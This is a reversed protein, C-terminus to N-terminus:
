QKKGKPAEPEQPVESAEAVPEALVEPVEMPTADPEEQTPDEPDSTVEDLGLSENYEKIVLELTGASQAYANMRAVSQQHADSTKQLEAKLEEFYKKIQAQNAEEGVILAKAEALNAQQKEIFTM